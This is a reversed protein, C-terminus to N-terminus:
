SEGGKVLALFDPRAAEKLEEMVQEYAMEHTWVPRGLTREVYEHFTAFDCCLVGTFASLVAGQESTLPIM